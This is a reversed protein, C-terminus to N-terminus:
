DLSVMAFNNILISFHFVFEANENPRWRFYDTKIKLSYITKKKTRLNIMDTLVFFFLSVFFDVDFLLLGVVLQSRLCVYMRVFITEIVFQSHPIRCCECVSVSLFRVLSLSLSLSFQLAKILTHM